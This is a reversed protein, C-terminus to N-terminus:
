RRTKHHHRRRDLVAQYRRGADRNRALIYYKDTTEFRSHGLLTGAIGVHAPDEVAITTALMHRFGHPNMREGHERKTIKVIRDRITNMAMPTARSSIWLSATAAPPRRGHQTLLLRRYHCV